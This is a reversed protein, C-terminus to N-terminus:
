GPLADFCTLQGSDSCGSSIRTRGRSQALPELDVRITLGRGRVLEQGKFLPTVKRTTLIETTRPRIVQLLSGTSATLGPVVEQLDAIVGINVFIRWCRGVYVDRFYLPLQQFRAFGSCVCTRFFFHSRLRPAPAFLETINQSCFSKRLWFLCRLLM